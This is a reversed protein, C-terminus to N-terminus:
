RKRKKKSGRKGYRRVRTKWAKRAARRRKAKTMRAM